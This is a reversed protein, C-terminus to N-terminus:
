WANVVEGVFHVLKNIIDFMTGSLIMIVVTLGLITITLMVRHNVTQGTGREVKRPNFECSQEDPSIRLMGFSLLPLFDIDIFNNIRDVWYALYLLVIWVCLLIGFLIILARVTVVVINEHGREINERWSTIEGLQEDNLDLRDAFEIADEQLNVFDGTVPDIIGYKGKQVVVTSNNEKNEKNSGNSDTKEVGAMTKLFGEAWEKRKNLNQYLSGSVYKSPDTGGVCREFSVCFADAADSASTMKKFEDLSMKAEALTQIQTAEIYIFQNMCNKEDLNNSKLWAVMSAWLGSNCQFAGTYGTSSVVSHDFGSEVDCNGLVGCASEKSYGNSIMYQYLEKAQELADGTLAEPPTGGFVTVPNIVIICMVLMLLRLIKKRM